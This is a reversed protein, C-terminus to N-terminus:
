QELKAFEERLAAEIDIMLTTDSYRSVQYQSSKLLVKIVAQISSASKQSTKLLEMIDPIPPVRDLDEELLTLSGHLTTLYNNLYHSLTVTTVRVAEATALDRIIQERERVLRTERLARDIAIQADEATFPKALYDRIGLHFAEVAIQESGYATMFIVPTSCSNKRLAALMELGTMYPMNMDLFILDPDYRLAKELGSKGDDAMIVNFGMAPFLQKGLLALMEKSDDVVLIKEQTM